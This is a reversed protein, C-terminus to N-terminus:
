EGTKQQETRPVFGAVRMLAELAEDYVVQSMQSLKVATEAAQLAYRQAQSLEPEAPSPDADLMQKTLEPGLYTFRAMLKRDSGQASYVWVSDEWADMSASELTRVALRPGLHAANLQLPLYVVVTREGLPISRMNDEDWYATSNAVTLEDANADHGIGLVQYLGGKYHRYIGLKIETESM